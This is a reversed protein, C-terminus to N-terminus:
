HKRRSGGIWFTQKIGPPSEAHPFPYTETAQELLSAIRQQHSASRPYPRSPISCADPQASVELPRDTALSCNEGAEVMVQGLTVAEAQGSVGRAGGHVGGIELMPRNLLSRAPKPNM